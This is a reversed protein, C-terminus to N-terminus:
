RRKRLKVVILVVVAITVLISVLIQWELSGDSADSEQLLFLSSAEPELVDDSEAGDKPVLGSLHTTGVIELKNEGSGEFKLTVFSIQQNTNVTPFYQQDNLYFTLDGGLLDNPIIVEGLNNELGSSISLTLKKEDEDFGFDAINFNSVIEVQFTYGSASVDLRNLIGTADSFSQGYVPTSMTTTTTAVVVVVLM